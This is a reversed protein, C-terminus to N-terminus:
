KSNKNVLCSHHAKLRAEVRLLSRLGLLQILPVLVIFVLGNRDLVLAVDVQPLLRDLFVIQLHVVHQLLAALQASLELPVLDIFACTLFFCATATRPTEANASKNRGHGTM